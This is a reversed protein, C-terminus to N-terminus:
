NAFLFRIFESNAQHCDKRIARFNGSIRLDWIDEEGKNQASIAKPRRGPKKDFDPDASTRSRSDCVGLSAATVGAERSSTLGAGSITGVPIRPSSESVLPNGRPHRVSIQPGSEEPRVLTSSAASAAAVRRSSAQARTSTLSAKSGTEAAAAPTSNPLNSHTRHPPASM